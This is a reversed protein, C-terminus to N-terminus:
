SEPWWDFRHLDVIQNPSFTESLYLNRSDAERLEDFSALIRKGGTGSSDGLTFEFCDRPQLFTNGGRVHGAPDAHLRVLYFPVTFMIVDKGNRRIKEYFMTKHAVIDQGSLQAM